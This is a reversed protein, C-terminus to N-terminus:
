ITLLQAHGEGGCRVARGIRAQGGAGPHPPEPRARRPNRGGRGNVRARRVAWGAVRAPRGAPGERLTRVLAERPCWTLTLEPKM